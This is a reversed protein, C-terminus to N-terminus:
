PMELKWVGSINRGTTRINSVLSVKPRVGMSNNSISFVLGYSRVYWLYVWNDASALWYQTNNHLLSGYRSLEFASTTVEGVIKDIDNKNMAEVNETFVNDFAEKLNLSNFGSNTYQEGSFFNTTLNTVSQTSKNGHYYLLPTGATVITVEDGSIDLVRWGTYSSKGSSGDTYINEYAVPYDVYDGIEVQSALLPAEDAYIAYLTKDGKIYKPEIVGDSLWQVSGGKTESWGLFYKGELTPEQISVNFLMGFQASKPEPFNEGEGSYTITYNSATDVIINPSINNAEDKLYLYIINEESLNKLTWNKTKTYTEWNDDDVAIEGKIQTDSILMKINEPKTTDDSVEINLIIETTSTYYVGDKLTAGEVKLIGKPPTVDVERDVTTAFTAGQILLFSILIICLNKKLKKM